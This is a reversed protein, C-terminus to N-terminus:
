RAELEMIMRAKSSRCAPCIYEHDDDGSVDGISVKNGCYCREGRMYELYETVEDSNVPHKSAAVELQLLLKSFEKTQETLIRSTEGRKNKEAIGIMYQCGLFFGEVHDASPTRM